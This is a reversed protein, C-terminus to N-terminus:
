DTLPLVTVTGFQRFHHDFSFAERIQLQQMVVYSTCDTFSWDKDQYREYVGIANAFDDEGVRVFRTGGGDLVDNRWEIGKAKQGRVAFLTLLEDVIYDTTLFPEINSAVFAKARAHDRDSTTALAYWAGTDVFIM